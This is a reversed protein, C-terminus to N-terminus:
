SQAERLWEQCTQVMTPELEQPFTGGKLCLGAGAEIEQFTSLYYSACLIGGNFRFEVIPEPHGGRMRRTATLRVELVSGQLTLAQM